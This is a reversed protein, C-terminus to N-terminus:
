RSESGGQRRRGEEILRIWRNMARALEEITQADTDGNLRLFDERLRHLREILEDYEDTM